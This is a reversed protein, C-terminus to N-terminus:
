ETGDAYREGLWAAGSDGGTLVTACRRGPLQHTALAAIGAAGAPELLVGLTEAALRQASRMAADDVLVIDDVLARVREVSEPIPAPNSLTTAVTDTAGDTVARGTRWAHAMAPSGAACVGVVRVDPAHTKLWLGIGSILAGDGVPVVVTDFAGGKELELGITGAGEAIRPHEGDRVLLRGPCQAAYGAAARSSDGDVVTVTAGLGRMRAVKAPDVRREVFISVAVGFARGAYAMAQGFNGASACVATRDGEWERMLTWAGRGKFSHLPNATELKVLVQRGLAECLQEDVFQPSDRLVPDLTRAAREIHEPSLDVDTIM